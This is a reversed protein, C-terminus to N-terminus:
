ASDYNKLEADIYNKITQCHCRKPVCWCGLSIDSFTAARLIQDLQELFGVPALDPNLNTHFYDYYEDCVRNREQMSQDRMRFPNGLPSTRDCIFDPSKHYRLNVIKVTM